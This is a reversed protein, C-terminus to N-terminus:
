AATAKANAAAKRTELEKKVQLMNAVALAILVLGMVVLSVSTFTGLSALPADKDIVFRAGVVALMLVGMTLLVPISTRRFGLTMFFPQKAVPRRSPGRYNVPAPAPTPPAEDEGAEAPQDEAEPSVGPAAPRAPGAPGAPGAPRAAPAPAAARPVPAAPRRSPAAALRSPVPAGPQAPRASAPAAARPKAAVPAPRPAAPRARAEPAPAPEVADPEADAHADHHEHTGHNDGATSDGSSQGGSLGALAAAIDDHNREAM